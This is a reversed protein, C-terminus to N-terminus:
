FVCLCVCDFLCLGASWRSSLQREIGGGEEAQRVGQEVLPDWRGEQGTGRHGLPQPGYLHLPVLLVEQLSTEGAQIHHRLEVSLINLFETETAVHLQRRSM